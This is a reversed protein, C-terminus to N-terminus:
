FLLVIKLLEFVQQILVRGLRKKGRQVRAALHGCGAPRLYPRDQQDQGRAAASQAQADAVAGEPREKTFYRALRRYGDEQLIKKKTYPVDYAEGWDWLRRVLVAPYESNRLFVHIHLSDHLGEIRYVYDVPRGSGWRKLRKLYTNWIQQVEKRNAPLNEPAFTLSHFVGDYEFLALRLELKDVTTRSMAPGCRSRICEGNKRLFCARDTSFVKVLPGARQKVICYEDM